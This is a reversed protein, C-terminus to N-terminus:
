NSVPSEEFDNFTFYLILSVSLIMKRNEVTPIFHYFLLYNLKNRSMEQCLEFPWWWCVEHIMDVVAVHERERQWSKKSRKEIKRVNVKWKSEKDECKFAWTSNFLTFNFPPTFHHSFLWLKKRKNESESYENWNTAFRELIIALLKSFSQVHFTWLSLKVWCSTCSM